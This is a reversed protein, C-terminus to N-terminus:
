RQSVRALRKRGGNPQRGHQATTGAAVIGWRNADEANVVILQLQCGHLHKQLRDAPSVRLMPQRLELDLGDAAGLFAVRQKGPCAGAEM